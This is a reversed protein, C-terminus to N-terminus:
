LKALNSTALGEREALSEDIMINAPYGNGYFASEPFSEKLTTM